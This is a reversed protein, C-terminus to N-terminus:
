GATPCHGTKARRVNFYRLRPAITYKCGLAKLYEAQLDGKGAYTQYDTHAAYSEDAKELAIRKEAHQPDDMNESYLNM